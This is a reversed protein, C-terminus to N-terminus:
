GEVELDGQAAVVKPKRGRKMSKAILRMAKIDEMTYLNVALEGLQIYHTPVFVGKTQWQRLTGTTRGVRKAAESRTYYGRPISAQITNGTTM